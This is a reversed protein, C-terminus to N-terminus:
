RMVNRVGGAGERKRKAEWEGEEEVQTGGEAHRTVQVPRWCLARVSHLCNFASHSTPIALLM